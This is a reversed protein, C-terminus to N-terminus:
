TSPTAISLTADVRLPTTVTRRPFTWGHRIGDKGNKVDVDAAILHAPGLHVGVENAKSTWLAKVREPDTTADLHGNKTLPTKSGEEGVRVPFVPLGREALGLAKQLTM